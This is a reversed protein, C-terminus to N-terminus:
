EHHKRERVLQEAVKLRLAIDAFTSLDMVVYGDNTPKQRRKHVVVGWRMGAAKAQKKADSVWKSYNSAAVDKCQVSFAGNLLIDGVDEGAQAARFADNATFHFFNRVASEWRTGKAKNSNPM